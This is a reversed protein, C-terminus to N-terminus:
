SSTMATRGPPQPKRRPALSSPGSGVRCSRWNFSASRPSIVRRFFHRQTIVWDGLKYGDETEYEHAVWADGNKKVYDRLHNLGVKFRVDRPNWVWGPLAELQQIRDAGLRGKRSRVTNVWVGLKHGDEAVYKLPPSFDGNHHNAYDLLHDFGVQFKSDHLDWTWTDSVAELQAIREATLWSEKLRYANRQTNVWAGLPYGEATIYRAQIHADRHEAVYQKVLEVWADWSASTLEILRTNFARSFEETIGPIDVKTRPPLAVPKTTGGRRSLPLPGLERRIDDIEEALRKDIARLALIADYVTKFASHDIAFEHNEDVSVFVPIVITGVTKGEAKRIARGVAQVIDIMSRKPDIFVVGDLTPVDIGETLCRANSLVAREDEGINRLRQLARKREDASDKGSVSTTWLHGSTQEDEPMWNIVQPLLSGVGRGEQGALPLHHGPAPWLQDDGQGSRGAGCDLAVEETEEGDLSTFKIIRGREAWERYTDDTTGIIAVQYDTLLNREIAEGFTLGHFVPGYKAEDDMSAQEFEAEKVAELVKVTYIRPTATMFLRKTAPIKENDLVTGFM